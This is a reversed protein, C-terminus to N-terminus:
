AAVYDGGKVLMEALERRQALTPTPEGALWERLYDRCRPRTTSAACTRSSRPRRAPRPPALWVAAFSMPVNWPFGGSTASYWARELRSNLQAGPAGPGCGATRENRM